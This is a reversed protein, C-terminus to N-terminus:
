RCCYGALEQSLVRTMYSNFVVSNSQPWVQADPPGAVPRTDAEDDIEFRMLEDSM